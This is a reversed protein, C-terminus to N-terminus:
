GFKVPELLLLGLDGLLLFGEVERKDGKQESTRVNAYVVAPLSPRPSLGM